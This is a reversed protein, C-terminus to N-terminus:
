MYHVSQATYFLSHVLTGAILISDEEKMHFDHINCDFSHVWSQQARLISKSKWNIRIHIGYLLLMKYMKVSQYAPLYHEIMRKWEDIEIVRGEEGPLDNVKYRETVIVDPNSIAIREKLEDQKWRIDLPVCIWGAM